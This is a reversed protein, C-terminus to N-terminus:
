LRPGSRKHSLDVTHNNLMMMEIYALSKVREGNNLSLQTCRDSDDKILDLACTLDEPTLYPFIMALIPECGQRAALQFVTANNRNAVESADCQDLVYQAIEVHKAEDKIAIQCIKKFFAFQDLPKKLSPFMRQISSLDNQELANHLMALTNLVAPQSVGLEGRQSYNKLVAPQSVARQSHNKM